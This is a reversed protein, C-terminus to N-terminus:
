QALNNHSNLPAAKHVDETKIPMWNIITGMEM